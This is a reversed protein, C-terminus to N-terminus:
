VAPQHKQRLDTAKVVCWRSDEITLRHGPKERGQNRRAQPAPKGRTIKAENLDAEERDSKTAIAQRKAGRNKSNM